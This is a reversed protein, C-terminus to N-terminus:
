GMSRRAVFEFVHWHKPGSVAMGDADTEEFAVEELGDLLGDLAVRDTITLKPDSAWTDNPGFLHVALVGGPRLAARIRAWFEPFAAPDTFPLSYGAYILDAEGLVAEEFSATQVTLNPRHDPSVRSRILEASAPTVDISTVKWGEVLLALTETGDGSGLDIAWGPPLDGRAELARRLLPRPERGSLAAYYDSWDAM